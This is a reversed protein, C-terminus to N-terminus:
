PLSDLGKYDIPDVRILQTLFPLNSGMIELTAVENVGEYNVSLGSVCLTWNWNGFINSHSELLDAEFIEDEVRIPVRGKLAPWPPYHSFKREPHGFELDLYLNAEQPKGTENSFTPYRLTSVVRRNFGSTAFNTVGGSVSEKSFSGFGLEIIERNTSTPLDWPEYIWLFPLTKSETKSPSM